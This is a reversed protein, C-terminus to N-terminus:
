QHRTKKKAARRGGKGTIQDRIALMWADFFQLLKPGKVNNDLLARILIEVSMFQVDAPVRSAQMQAAFLKALDQALKVKTPDLEKM